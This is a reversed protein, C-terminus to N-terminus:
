GGLAGAVRSVIIDILSVYDKAGADQGVSAPLVLVQAGIRGAVFKAARDSFYPEQLIAKVGAQRGANSVEQIHGPTPDLGPKPELEGIVRLDFRNAFYVWSRHYTIIPRGRYRLMQGAWGGVQGGTKDGLVGQNDWAWLKDAGFKGVAASGFMHEDISRIFANANAQFDRASEPQLKAMRDALRDAMIRANYPDLWYHPNGYPHIDGMARSVGGTPKELVPVGDAAYVHGPAGLQVRANRSGQLIASEYGVELDLGVAIFMDAKAVRSMFSPKAELRHPDRAGVILPSASVHNGGVAQAISALDATTTVVNLTKAPALAVAASLTTLVTTLM